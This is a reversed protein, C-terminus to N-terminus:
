GGAARVALGEAIEIERARANARARLRLRGYGTAVAGALPVAVSALAAGGTVAGAALAGAGALVAGATLRQAWTGAVEDLDALRRQRGRLDAVHDRLVQAVIERMEAAANADNLASLLAIRETQEALVARTLRELASPDVPDEMALARCLAILATAPRKDHIRPEAM